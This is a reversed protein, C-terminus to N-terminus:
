SAPYIATIGRGGKSVQPRLIGGSPWLTGSLKAADCLLCQCLPFSARPGQVDFFAPITYVGGTLTVGSSRHSLGVRAESHGSQDTPGDARACPEDKEM